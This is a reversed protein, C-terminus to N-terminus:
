YVPWFLVLSFCRYWRLGLWLTALWLILFMFLVYIYELGCLISSIYFIFGVGM